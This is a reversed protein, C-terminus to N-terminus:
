PDLKQIIEFIDKSFVKISSLHKDTFFPTQEYNCQQTQTYCLLSQLQM